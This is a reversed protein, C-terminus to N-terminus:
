KSEDKKDSTDTKASSDPSGSLTGTKYWGSGKLQFSSSSILKTLQAKGCKPCTKLEADNVKQIVELQHGCAGCQYEYIPM